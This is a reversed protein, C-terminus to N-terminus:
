PATEGGSGEEKGYKGLLVRRSMWLQNRQLREPSTERISSPNFAWILLWAYLNECSNRFRQWARETEGPCLLDFGWRGAIRTMRPGYRGLFSNEGRIAHIDRFDPDTQMTIALQSLSFTLRRQFTRAWTLDPGQAPIEPVHENWLHLEGVTEGRHISTGDSLTLDAHSRGISVRLLCREASCFERIGRAQRVLADIAGITRRLIM